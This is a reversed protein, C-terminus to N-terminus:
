VLTARSSVAIMDIVTKLESVQQIACRASRVGGGRGNLVPSGSGMCWNSISARGVYGSSRVDHKSARWNRWIIGGSVARVAVMKNERSEVKVYQARHLSLRGSGTERRSLIFGPSWDLM